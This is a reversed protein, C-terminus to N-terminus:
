PSEDDPLWVKTGYVEDTHQCDGCIPDRSLRGCGFCVAYVVVCARQNNAKAQPQLDKPASDTTHLGRVTVSM